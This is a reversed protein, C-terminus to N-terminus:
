MDKYEFYHFKVAFATAPKTMPGDEILMKTRYYYNPTHISRAWLRHMHERKNRSM